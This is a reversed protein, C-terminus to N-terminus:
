KAIRPKRHEALYRGVEDRDVVYKYGGRSAPVTTARLTGRAIAKQVASRTTGLALAVEPVSLQDTM